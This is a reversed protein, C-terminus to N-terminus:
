GDLRVKQLRLSNSIVSVSSLSMALAAIMPNLLLGTVPYLVGAAIPVGAANYVFAFFLNQRINTMTARSLQRARVLGRLDGKLLTIAASEMAVDTGTGMAIGVHAQALAPADNIGDGAMAVFRGAAQLQKIEAIKGEPLVDAHIETIGLQRAVAEATQRNDGTMMVVRIGEKHLAKIAGPASEKIRDAVGIIGVVQDDFALFMATEGQARMADAQEAANKISAGVSEMMALNGLSLRKGNWRGQVGKGTISEFDAVPVPTLGREKLGDLIATALPHESGQELGGAAILIEDETHPALAQVRMLRPKGETLTGTKDVVLTDVKEFSELAEASKILIGSQAGRGTGVMIAMPTALGLACPCAIILVAVANILAFAMAPPPGWLAWAVFSIVAVAVVSPVFYGAVTDSLKQIPARSRQADSVMQVIQSLLTDHGVREAKMLFSGTQNVTAGTVKSGASKAVAMPEGSIMSEDVHSAGETVVGDVPISEGPRVRLINGVMVHALPIDEEVGDVVLRAEKPALSLLARIASSTASRARLELVQGLLVLTTIVAAAEFYLDVGGMPNRFSTPFIGPAFVGIMSYLWAVGTGMAILTFMNPSRHVISAWGRQFFPLGGWLVVPTAFASQSWGLVGHPVRHSIDFGFFHPMVLLVLPLSLIASIWFRRSMDGLEHDEEDLTFTTPELAMGCKPCAGPGMQRIEPHMPCTYEIEASGAPEVRPALAKAPDARFRDLCSQGCFYYTQGEYVVSGAASEPEVTMGCIPDIFQGQDDQKM